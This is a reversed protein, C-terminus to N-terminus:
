KQTVYRGVIAKVIEDSSIEGSAGRAFVDRVEDPITVGEGAALMAIHEAEAYARIADIATRSLVCM